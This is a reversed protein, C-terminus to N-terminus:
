KKGTSKKWATLLKGIENIREMIYQYKKIPLFNVDKAIRIYIRFLDLNVSIQNQEELRDPKSNPL